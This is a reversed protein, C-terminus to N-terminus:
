LKKLKRNPNVYYLDIIDWLREVHVVINNPLNSPNSNFEIRRITDVRHTISHDRKLEKTYRIKQGVFFPLHDMSYYQNVSRKYTNPIELNFFINM